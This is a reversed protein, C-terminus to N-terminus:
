WVACTTPTSGLCDLDSSLKKATLQEINRWNCGGSLDQFPDKFESDLNVNSIMTCLDEAYHKRRAALDDSEKKSTFCSKAEEAFLTGLPCIGSRGSCSDGESSLDDDWEMVFAIESLSFDNDDYLDGSNSHTDCALEMSRSESAM